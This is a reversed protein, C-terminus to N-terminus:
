SDVMGLDGLEQLEGFSIVLFQYSVVSMQYSVEAM